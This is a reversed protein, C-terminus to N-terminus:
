RKELAKALHEIVRLLQEVTKRESGYGLERGDKHGEEYSANKETELEAETYLREPQPAQRDETLSM